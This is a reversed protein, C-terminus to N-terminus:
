DEINIVLAADYVSYEDNVWVDTVKKDGFQELLFDKLDGLYGESEATKIINEKIFKMLNLFINPFTLELLLDGLM